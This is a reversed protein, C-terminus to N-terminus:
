FDKVWVPNSLYGKLILKSSRLYCILKGEPALSYGECKRVLENPFSFTVKRTKCDLMGYCSYIWDIGLIAYFDIMIKIVIFFLYLYNKYVSRAMIFDGIPTSNSFPESINKPEFDFSVAVYPTMYSFTSGLDLRVYM